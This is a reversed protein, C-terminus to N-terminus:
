IKGNIILQAKKNKRSLSIKNNLYLKEIIKRSKRGALEVSYVSIKNNRYVPNVNIKTSIYKKIFILYQEMLDKSGLLRLRPSNGTTNLCGDGDVVGRWFHRSEKIIDTAKAIKTKKSVVGYNSLCNIMHRSSVEIRSYKKDNYDYTYLPKNTKLFNAFKQVHASDRHQLTLSINSRYKTSQIYGDAMLFGAWYESNENKKSFVNEDITYLRHAESLSRRKIGNKKLINLITPKSVKAQAAIKISSVGKKYFDCIEEVNLKSKM